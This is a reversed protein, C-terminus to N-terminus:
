TWIQTETLQFYFSDLYFLAPLMEFGIYHILYEIEKFKLYKDVFIILFFLKDMPFFQIKFGNPIGCM